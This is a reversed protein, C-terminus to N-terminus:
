HLGVSKKLGDIEEGTLQRYDGALLDEPLKVSGFGTRVLRIVKYNFHEFLRRVLRNRGEHVTVYYLAGKSKGLDKGQLFQIETEKTIGDELAIGCRIQRLEDPRLKGNVLVHYHRPVKYKPHTLRNVIEGDNSLLLLGETFFDLRGISYVLFSLNRLKPLDFITDKGNIGKRSTLYCAPKNLLWYIKPPAKRELLRGDLSIRNTEPDFRTGLEKVVKGDVSIRGARLWAEAERRSAIGIQSFWKHIRIEDM